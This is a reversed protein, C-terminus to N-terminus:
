LKQFIAYIFHQDTGFPTQHVEEFSSILNFATAFSNKLAEEAYQTIELGSCKTPGSTSFASLILYRGSRISNAAINVYKKIEEQATLFHFTARDHWVDFIKATQFDLVDSVIWSIKEADAGLKRKTRELAQASIDLVTLDQYGEELLKGTFNSNGGGIDIIAAEKSISLSRILKLSTQPVEQYWSVEHDQKTEYVKEWHEKRSKTEEM